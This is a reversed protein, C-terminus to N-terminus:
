VLQTYHNSASPCGCPHGENKKPTKLKNSQIINDGLTVM